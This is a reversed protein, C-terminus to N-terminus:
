QRTGRSDLNPQPQPPAARTLTPTAPLRVDVVGLNTTDVGALVLEAARLKAALDHAEGLLISGRPVVGLSINNSGASNPDASADITANAVLPRLGPPIARAVELLGRARQELMTGPPGAPALGAIVLVGPLPASSWTLVRGQTDVLAWGGGRNPAVAAPTREVLRIRVTSPWERAVAASLVWPMAEVRRRVGGEDVDTMPTGRAVGAAEVVAEAATQSAGQVVVRDVDLLPSRTAAWGAAALGVCFAIAALARLRRRGEQRRVQARRVRIRPEMPARSPTNSTTNM